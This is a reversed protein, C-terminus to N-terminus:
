NTLAYLCLMVDYSSKWNLVYLDSVDNPKTYAENKIFKLSFYPQLTPIKIIKFPASASVFKVYVDKLCKNLKHTCIFPASASVFKVYVDKLCKNLKHTCTFPASASVFKVYIGKPCTNLKHTCRYWKCM